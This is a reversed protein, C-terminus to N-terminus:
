VHSFKCNVSEQTTISIDLSVVVAGKVSIHVLVGIHVDDIHGCEDIDQQTVPGWGFLKANISRLPLSRITPPKDKKQATTSNAAVNYM